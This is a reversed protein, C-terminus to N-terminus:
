SRSFVPAAVAYFRVSVRWDRFLRKGHLAAGSSTVVASRGRRTPLPPAGPSRARQSTPVPRTARLRDARGTESCKVKTIDGPEGYWWEDIWFRLDQRQWTGSQVDLVEQKEVRRGVGWGGPAPDWPRSCVNGPNLGDFPSAQTRLTAPTHTRAGVRM